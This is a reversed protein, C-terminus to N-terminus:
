SFKKITQTYIKLHFDVSKTLEFNKVTSKFATIKFKSKLVKTIAKSLALSSHPKVLIGVNKNVIENSGIISTAIVPRHAALAEVIGIPPITTGQGTQQPLVICDSSSLLMPIDVYKERLLVSDSKLSYIYDKIKQHESSGKWIIYLIFIIKNTITIDLKKIAEMLDLVGKEKTLPGFYSFIFKNNPLNLTKRNKNKSSQNHSFSLNIGPPSYQIKKPNIGLQKINIIMKKSPILYFQAYDFIKFWFLKGLFTNNFVSHTYVIPTKFITKFILARFLIVPTSSFEHIIDFKQKRLIKIAYFTTLIPILSLYFILNKQIFNPLKFTYIKVKYRHEIKNIWNKWKSHTHKYIPTIITAEINNDSLKFILNQIFETGWGAPPGIGSILFLIKM